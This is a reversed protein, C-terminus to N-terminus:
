ARPSRCTPHPEPVPARHRKGSRRLGRGARRPDRPRGRHRTPWPGPARRVGANLRPINTLRMALANDFARAARGPHVIACAEILAREPVVVPIRLHRAIHHEPLLRSGHMIGDGVRRTERHPGFRTSPGPTFGPVGWVHMGVLHSAAALPGGCLVLRSCTRSGAALAAPWDTCSSCRTSSAKPWRARRVQGQSIELGALQDRTIVGIQLDARDRRDTPDLM